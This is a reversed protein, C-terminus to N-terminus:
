AMHMHLSNVVKVVNEIPSYTILMVDATRKIFVQPLVTTILVQIVPQRARTQKVVSM